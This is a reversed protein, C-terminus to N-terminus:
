RRRGGVGLVEENRFTCATDTVITGVACIKTSEGGGPDAIGQIDNFTAAADEDRIEGIIEDIFVGSISYALPNHIVLTLAVSWRTKGKNVVSDVCASELNRSHSTVLGVCTRFVAIPLGWTWEKEICRRAKTVNM